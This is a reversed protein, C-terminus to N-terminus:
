KKIVSNNSVNKPTLLAWVVEIGWPITVCTNTLNEVTFKSKNVLIAPRGGKGVRQAVNSVIEYNELKLLEELSLSERQWTESMCITDVENEKVFREFDESKNYISRPNINLM